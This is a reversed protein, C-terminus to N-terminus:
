SDGGRSLCGEDLAASPGRAGALARPWRPEQVQREPEELEGFGANNRPLDNRSPYPRCDSKRIEASPIASGSSNLREMVEARFFAALKIVQGCPVKGTARIDCTVIDPNPRPHADSEEAALRGCGSM